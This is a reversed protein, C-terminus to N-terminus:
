LWSPKACTVSARLRPPLDKVQKRRSFLVSPAMPADVLELIESSPKQYTLKEQANLGMFLVLTFLTVFFKKMNM